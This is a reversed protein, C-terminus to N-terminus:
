ALNVGQDLSDLLDLLVLFVLAEKREMVEMRELHVWKGLKEPCELNVLNEEQVRFDRAVKLVAQGQTEKQELFELFVQEVLNVLLDPSELLAWQEM